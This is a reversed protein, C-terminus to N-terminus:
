AQHAVFLDLDSAQLGELALADNVVRTVETVALKFVQKGDMRICPAKASSDLAAAAISDLNLIGAAGGDSRLLSRVVGRNSPGRSLLAAAGADGFLVCTNRDTWDTVRSLTEAGIVLVHECQGSDILLSAMNVGYVFGACAATLDCAFAHRAGIKEQIICATAPFQMDPVIGGVFIAGVEEPKVGGRELAERAAAAGLDSAKLPSDKPLIRRERIGTRTVIWEDSTEVMRELDANTLINDPLSIGLGRIIAGM